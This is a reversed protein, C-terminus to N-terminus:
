MKVSLPKELRFSLASEAPFVIDKNGTFAAGATGAGGGVLAGIAAGKGGGALAGILAGGGAGGGIMEVSRKGKGRLSRSVSTTQLDYKAGNITVSDLIVRLVAAGKFRGLPVADTVTGSAVSDRPIVVKGDAEVPEAVVGSFTDGARNRKSSLTENLRVTLVTGEPLVVPKNELKSFLSPPQSQDGSDALKDSPKSSCGATFLLLLLASFIAGHRRYM